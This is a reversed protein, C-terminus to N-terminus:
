TKNGEIAIGWSSTRTAVTLVYTGVGVVVETLRTASLEIDGNDDTCTVYTGDPAKIKLVAVDSGLNAEPYVFLTAAIVETGQRDVTFEDSTVSDTTGPALIIKPM